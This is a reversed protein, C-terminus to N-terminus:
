CRGRPADRLLALNAAKDGTLALGYDPDCDFLICMYAQSWILRSVPREHQRFWGYMESVARADRAWPMADVYLLADKASVALVVVTLIAGVGRFPKFWGPIVGLPGAVTRGRGGIPGLQEAIAGLWGAITNWGVLMVLAIAPAVCVFYRPYGASGMLGHLRLASHVVFLTLIASTLIGLRRRLLLVALGLLFPISLWRGVIESRHRWYDWFSGTGYTASTASWNAPWNHLIYLPDGTILLAALWWALTGGALWLTSPLRRWPPRADRRDVLVWVGWLVGLVFGEPRALPLLSAVIMGARVRGRVHLRLAVAFVLAFLPETMTEGSLLLFSPQLVLLPIALEARELGLDQALRWTQWATGLCILVTFYKAAPYGLQAPFSYLFTFLPRGWVNVFLEPHAWAWRAGLFHHGGDQQYSDPYLLALAAGAGALAALWWAARV